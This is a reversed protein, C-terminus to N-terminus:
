APYGHTQATDILADRVRGIVDPWDGPRTQRFLRASPYWPSDERELLWRWDPARPLLVWVPRSCRPCNLKQQLPTRLGNVSGGCECAVDFPEPPAEVRGFVAAAKTLWGVLM